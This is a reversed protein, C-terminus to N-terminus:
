GASHGLSPVLEGAGRGPLGAGQQVATHIDMTDVQEHCGLDKKKWVNHSLHNCHAPQPSSVAAAAPILTLMALRLVAFAIAHLYQLCDQQQALVAHMHM